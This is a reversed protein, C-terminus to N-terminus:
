DGDSFNIGLEIKLSDPIERKFNGDLKGLAIDLMDTDQEEISNKVEDINARVTDVALQAGNSIMISVISITTKDTGELLAEVEDISAAIAEWSIGSVKAATTAVNRKQLYELYAQVSTILVTLPEAGDALQNTLFLARYPQDSDAAQVKWESQVAQAHALIQNALGKLILCKRPSGEYESVIDSSATSNDGTATEFSASELALLGVNQFTKAAFYDDNLLDDGSIDSAIEGRVTGLYDTGRLRLSDFFTYRPFIPDNDLPGFNYNSLRYWQIFLEKWAQQLASLSSANINQCFGDAALGYQNAEVLLQDVAVIISYDISQRIADDLSVSLEAEEVPDNKREAGGGGCAVLGLAAVGVLILSKKFM